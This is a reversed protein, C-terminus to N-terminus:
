DGGKDPLYNRHTGSIEDLLQKLGCDCNGTRPLAGYLISSVAEAEELSYRISAKKGQILIPAVQELLFCMECQVDVPCSFVKDLADWIEPFDDAIEEFKKWLEIRKEENEPLRLDIM